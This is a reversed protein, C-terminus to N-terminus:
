ISCNNSNGDSEFNLASAVKLSDHSRGGNIWAQKLNGDRQCESSTVKLSDYISGGSVRTQKFKWGSQSESCQM